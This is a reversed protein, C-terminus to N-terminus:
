RLKALFRPNEVDVSRCRRPASVPNCRGPRGEPIQVSYAPNIAPDAAPFDTSVLQAGSGLALDRRTTDNARAEVTDADARTRVLYHRRVLRAIRAADPDDVKVVAASPAAVRATVFMPAGELAPRGELYVDRAASGSNLILVIKGRTRGLTPWGRERVAERLTAARGRVDDPELLDDRTLVSRTTADLRDVAAADFAGLRPDLMRELAGDKPEVLVFVPVHGPHDDSWAKTVRLCEDFPTCTTEADVVPTHVVPFGAGDNVIDLEFGRVGQTELQQDLPLHEYDISEGLAGPLQVPGRRHYSNHTNLVQVQDLRLSTDRPYAAPKAKRGGGGGGCTAAVLAVVVGALLAGRAERM